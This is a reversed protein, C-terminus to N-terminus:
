GVREDRRRRELLGRAHEGFGGNLSRYVVQATQLLVPVHSAENRRAGSPLVVAVHAARWLPLLGGSLHLFFDRLGVFLGLTSEFEHTGLALRFLECRLLKHGVFPPAIRGK